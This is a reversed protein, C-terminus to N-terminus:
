KIQGELHTDSAVRPVLAVKRARATVQVLLLALEFEAAGGGGGLETGLADAQDASETSVGLATSEAEVGAGEGPSSLTRRRESNNHSFGTCAHQTSQQPRPTTLV